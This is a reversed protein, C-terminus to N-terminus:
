ATTLGSGPFGDVALQQPSRYSRLAFACSPPMQVVPGNEQVGLGGGSEAPGQNTLNHLPLALLSGGLELIKSNMSFLCSMIPISNEPKPM